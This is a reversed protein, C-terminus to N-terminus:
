GNDAGESEEKLRIPMVIKIDDKNTRILVPELPSRFELVVPNKFSSGASIKAAQLASLLYNGNFGIRYVPKSQPIATEWEFEDPAPQHYGVIFEGCRIVVEDNELSFSAYQKVPLKINGKVYVRFSEACDSIVAHEVSMKYGDVAMATVQQHEADFELRIYQHAVRSCSGGAFAKTAAIIRNLDNTYIRATKM